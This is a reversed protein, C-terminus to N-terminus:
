NRLEEPMRELNLENVHAILKDITLTNTDQSGYARLAVSKSEIEKDGLIMMYPVKSKQITRTKKGLTENSEDIRARVGVQKLTQLIEKAYDLHFETNVPVIM